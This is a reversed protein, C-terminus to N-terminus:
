GVSWLSIGAHPRFTGENEARKSECKEGGRGEGPFQASTSVGGIPDRGSHAVSPILGGVASPRPYSTSRCSVIPASKAVM